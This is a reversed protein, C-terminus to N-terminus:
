ETYDDVQSRLFRLTYDALGLAMFANLTQPHEVVAGHFERGDAYGVQGITLVWGATLSTDAIGDDAQENGYTELIRLHDRIAEDLRDVSARYEPQDFIGDTM